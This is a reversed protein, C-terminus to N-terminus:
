LVKKATPSIFMSTKTRRMSWHFFKMKWRLWILCFTCTTPLVQPQEVAVKKQCLAALMNDQQSRIMSVRATHRAQVNSSLMPVPIVVQTCNQLENAMDGGYKQTIYQLIKKQTTQMLVAPSTSGYDFIDGELDKNLRVKTSKNNKNHHSRGHGSAGGHGDGHDRSGRGRGAICGSMANHFHSCYYYYLVFKKSIINSSCGEHRNDTDLM